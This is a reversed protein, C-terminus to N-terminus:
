APGPRELWSYQERLRFGRKGLNLLMLQAQYDRFRYDRAVTQLPTSTIFTANAAGVSSTVPGVREALERELASFHPLVEYVNPAARLLDVSVLRSKADFQLTLRSIAPTGFTTVDTCELVSTVAGEHCSALTASAWHEVEARSTRGLEFALAPHTAADAGGLAARLKTLRVADFTAADVPGVPCGAHRALLSLLPLKLLPRGIPTHAVGIVVTALALVGGVALVAKVVARRINV